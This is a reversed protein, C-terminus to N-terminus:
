CWRPVGVLDYCITNARIPKEKICNKLREAVKKRLFGTDSEKGSKPQRLVLKRDEVDPDEIQWIQANNRWLKFRLLSRM